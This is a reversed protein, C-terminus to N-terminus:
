QTTAQAPVSPEGAKLVEHLMRHHPKGYGEITCNPWKNLTWCEMGMPHRLCFLCLQKQHVMELRQKPAMDRFASCYDLAHRRSCRFLSCPVMKKKPPPASVSLKGGAASVGGGEAAPLVGKQKAGAAECAPVKAEKTQAKKKKPKAAAGDSAATNGPPAVLTMLSAQRAAERWDPQVSRANGLSTAPETELRRKPRHGRAFESAVGPDQAISGGGTEEATSVCAM